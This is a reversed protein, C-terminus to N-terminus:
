YVMCILTKQSPSSPSIVDILQRVRDDIPIHERTVIWWHISVEESRELMFKTITLCRIRILTAEIESTAKGADEAVVTSRRRSLSRKRKRPTDALDM